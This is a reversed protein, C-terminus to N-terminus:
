FPWSPYIGQQAWRDMTIEKGEEMRSSDLLQGLAVDKLRDAGRMGRSKVTNEGANQVSGLPANPSYIIPSSMFPLPVPMQLTTLPDDAQSQLM